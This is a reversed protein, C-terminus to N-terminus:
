FPPEDDGYPEVAESSLDAWPDVDVGTPKPTGDPLLRFRDCVTRIAQNVADGWAMGADQSSQAQAFLEKAEPTVGSYLDTDVDKIFASIGTSNHQSLFNKDIHLYNRLVVGILCAPTQVYMGGIETDMMYVCRPKGSGGDYTTTATDNVQAYPDSPDVYLDPKWGLVKMRDTYTLNGNEDVAKLLLRKAEAFDLLPPVEPLTRLVLM